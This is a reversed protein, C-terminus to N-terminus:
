EISGVQRRIITRVHHACVAVTLTVILGNYDSRPDEGVVAWPQRSRPRQLCEWIPLWSVRQVGPACIIHCAAPTVEGGQSLFKRKTAGPLGVAPDSPQSCAGTWHSAPWGRDQATILVTLNEFCFCHLNMHCVGWFTPAPRGGCAENSALSGTRGCLSSVSYIFLVAVHEARNKM